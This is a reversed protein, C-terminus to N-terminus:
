RTKRDLPTITGDDEPELIRRLREMCKLCRGQPYDPGAACQGCFSDKWSATFRRIEGELPGGRGRKQLATLLDDVPREGFVALLGRGLWRVRQWASRFARRLQILM